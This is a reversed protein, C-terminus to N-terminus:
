DLWELATYGPHRCLEGEVSFVCDKMLEGIDRGGDLIWKKLARTKLPIRRKYAGTSM